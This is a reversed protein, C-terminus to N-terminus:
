SPSPKRLRLSALRSKSKCLLKKFNCSVVFRGYVPQTGTRPNIAPKPLNTPFPCTRETKRCAAVESGTRRSRHRHRQGTGRIPRWSHAAPGCAAAASRVGNIPPMGCGGSAGQPAFGKKRPHKAPRNIPCGSPKAGPCPLFVVGFNSFICLVTSM